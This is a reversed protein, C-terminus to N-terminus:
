LSVGWDSCPSLHSFRNFIFIHSFVGGWSLIFGLPRLYMWDGSGVLVLCARLAREPQQGAAPATATHTVERALETGECKRTGGARLQPQLLASPLRPVTGTSSLGPHWWSQQLWLGFGAPSGHVPATFMGLSIGPSHSAPSPHVWCWSLLWPWASSGFSLGWALVAALALSSHLLPIFETGPSCGHGPQGEM